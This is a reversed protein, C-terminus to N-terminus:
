IEISVGSGVFVGLPCIALGSGLGGGVTPVRPGRRLFLNGVSIEFYRKPSRTFIGPVRDPRYSFLLAPMMTHIATLTM